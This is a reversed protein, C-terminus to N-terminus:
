DKTPTYLPTPKVGIAAEITEPSSKSWMRINGDDTLHMWACPKQPQMAKLMALEDAFREFDQRKVQYRELVEVIQAHQEQTYIYVTM